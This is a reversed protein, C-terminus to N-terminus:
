LGWKRLQQLVARFDKPLDAKVHIREKTSPQTLSLEYAHLTCRSMLPREAEARNSKYKKGKIESLFFAQKRSYLPDIALPYGIAEFHVRIQHTRGTKINVEVLTYNKFRELVKYESLSPKGKPHIVMKGKLYPHKGIPKDIIGQENHVNGAALALYKKEVLRNEFQENLAKHTHEDKAFVLLGSTERDIRHVTYINGFKHKLFSQVNPLDPQFRDPISLYNAPKSVIVLEQDEYLLQPRNKM